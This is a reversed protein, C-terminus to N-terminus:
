QEAPFPTPLSHLLPSTILRALLFRCVLQFLSLTPTHSLLALPEHEGVSESGVGNRPAIM